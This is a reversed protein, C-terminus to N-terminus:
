QKICQYAIYYIPSEQEIFILLAHAALIKSVKKRFNYSMQVYQM